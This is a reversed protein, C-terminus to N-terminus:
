MSADCWCMRASLVDNVIVSSEYGKVNGGGRRVNTQWAYLHVLELYGLDLSVVPVGCFRRSSYMCYYNRQTSSSNPPCDRGVIITGPERHFLSVITIQKTRGLFLQPTCTHIGEQLPQCLLVVKTEVFFDAADLNTYTSGPCTNSRFKNRSRTPVISFSEYQMSNTMTLVLPIQDVGWCRRLHECSISDLGRLFM